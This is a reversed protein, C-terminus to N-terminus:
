FTQVETIKVPELLREQRPAYRAEAVIKKGALIHPLWYRDAPLMNEPLEGFPFWAAAKMEETDKPEGDMSRAIYVHVTCVFSIGEETRNRFRVVAAKELREPSVRFGGEEPVERCVAEVETEGPEIGGGYGNYRGAGIHRQKLALLVRGERVPFCLVADELIKEADNM